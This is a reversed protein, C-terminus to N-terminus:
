RKNQTVTLITKATQPVVTALAHPRIINYMKNGNENVDRSKIIVSYKIVISISFGIFYLDVPFVNNTRFSFVNDTCPYLALKILRDYAFSFSM